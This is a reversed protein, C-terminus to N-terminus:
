RKAKAQLISRFEEAIGEFLCALRKVRDADTTGRPPLKMEGSGTFLWSLSIGKEEAWEALSVVLDVPLSHVNGRSIRSILLQAFGGLNEALDKQTEGALAMAM